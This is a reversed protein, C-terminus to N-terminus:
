GQTFKNIPKLCLIQVVTSWHGRYEQFSKLRKETSVHGNDGYNLLHGEVRIAEVTLQDILLMTKLLHIKLTLQIM